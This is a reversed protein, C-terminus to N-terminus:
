KLRPKAAVTPLMEPLAGSIRGISRQAATLLKRDAPNRSAARVMAFLRDLAALNDPLQDIKEPRPQEPKITEPDNGTKVGIEPIAALAAMIDLMLDDFAIAEKLSMTKRIDAAQMGIVNFSSAVKQVAVAKRLRQTNVIARDVEVVTPVNQGSLGRLGITWLLLGGFRM